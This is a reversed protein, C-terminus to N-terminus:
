QLKLELKQLNQQDSVHITNYDGRPLAILICPSTIVQTLMSGPTPLRWDVNVAVVGQEDSAQTSSLRLGYGGTRQQGMSIMLILERQFDIDAPIKMQKHLQSVTNVAMISASTQSGGCHVGSALQRV